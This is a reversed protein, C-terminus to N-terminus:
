ECLLRGAAYVVDASGTKVWAGSVQTGSPDSALVLQRGDGALVDIAPGLLELGIDTLALPHVRTEPGAGLAAATHALVFGANTPVVELDVPNAYIEPALFLVNPTALFLPGLLDFRHVEAALGPAPSVAAVLTNSRVALDVRVPVAGLADAAERVGFDPILDRIVLKPEDGKFAAFGIVPADDVMTLAPTVPAALFEGGLAQPLSTQRLDDGPIIAFQPTLANPFRVPAIWAVFTLPNDPLGNWVLAPDSAADVALTV